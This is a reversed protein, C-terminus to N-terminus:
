RDEVALGAAVTLRGADVDGELADDTAAVAIEVPLSLQESLQEAFGPISVAPGTLLAREVNEANDQMRYFNLSNRVTDALQHVGEELTARTAAVLDADGEVSDLPEVLGVHGLWMRAHELTLSRREALTAVIASLGGAAARTFLCGSHNAVAVNTLGAVNIYLSTGEGDPRALARVMGFAALDIGEVKLGAEKTAGVLRDILERRVAVIVVRMRPGAATQVQGLPVYDLIAEDMPMPIHDPAEARVAADLAKQDELPPLDLSRVVIRQNAVGLRVRNPLQNEAFFTKLAEALAPADTVEGDRLIGPRLEAVAGRKISIQGNVTVEAAAIHSPDLDLGVVSQNNKRNRKLV